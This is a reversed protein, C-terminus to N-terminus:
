GWWLWGRMFDWLEGLVGAGHGGEESAGSGSNPVVRLVQPSGQYSLHYLIRRCHLLGAEMGPNPLDGPSLFPLGSWHEQRSFGISLPTQHAVTWPAVFLQVRSLSHCKRFVQPSGGASDQDGRPPSPSQHRLFAGGRLATLHACGQSQWSACGRPFATVRVAPQWSERNVLKHQSFTFTM